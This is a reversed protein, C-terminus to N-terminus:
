TRGARSPPSGTSSGTGCGSPSSAGADPRHPGAPAPPLAGPLPRRRGRRGPLGPEAEPIPPGDRPIRRDPHGNGVRHGCARAEPGAAELPKTFPHRARKPSSATASAGSPRSGAPSTPTRRSRAGSAASTSPSPPTPGAVGVVLGVGARAAARPHVGPPALAALFALLDFEKATMEVRRAASSSERTTSTSRAPRRLRAPRRGPTARTPGPPAGVRHPGLARGASFPKVVYDDAGM